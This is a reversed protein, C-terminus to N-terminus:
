FHFRVPQVANELAAICTEFLEKRYITGSADQSLIQATMVPEDGVIAFIRGGSKLQEFLVDPVVPTSATLVIVDYPGHRSYGKAGDGQEVVVGHIGAAALNREGLAALGPSLEVSIVKGACHSLLAAFYGSGTGIELVRDTKELGLEQLVRAEMKPAWMRQNPVPGLPIELDSFALARYQEPVFRERPVLYLLDLVAQNLVEWPRIQQEVMNFRSQELNPTASNM